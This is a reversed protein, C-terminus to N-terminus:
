IRNSWDIKGYGTEKDRIKEKLIESSKEVTRATTDFEIINEKKEVAEALILDLIESQVNDEVKQASYDRESLREELKDPDCRLVICYDSQINHSLHGEIIIDEGRDLEKDIVATIEDTDIVLEGHSDKEGIGHKEYFNNLHIVRYGLSEGLKRSISTKGTGPTGTVTIWTM